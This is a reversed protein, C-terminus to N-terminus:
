MRSMALLLEQRRGVKKLGDLDLCVCFVCMSLSLSVSVSISPFTIASFLNGKRVTNTMRHYYDQKDNRDRVKINMALQVFTSRQAAAPPPSVSNQENMRILLIVVSEVLNDM